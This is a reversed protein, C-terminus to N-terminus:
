DLPAMVELFWVNSGIRLSLIHDGMSGMSTRTLHLGQKTFLGPKPSVKGAVYHARDWRPVAPCLFPLILIVMLVLALIGLSCLILLHVRQKRNSLDIKELFVAKMLMTSRCKVILM